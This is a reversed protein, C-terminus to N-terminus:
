KLESKSLEDVYTAFLKIGNVYNEVDLKENISHAGDDGRGMSLLLVNKNLATEFTLTIPISGGERVLDPEVGYVTKVAKAGITYHWHFPSSIWWSGSHLCEVSVRNKSNLSAFVKEVHEKVCKNIHEATMNPVTRISFKGTVKAPIVTKAGSESFAGQIGHLSLTPYRWRHQLTDKPSDYVNIEGGVAQKLDDMSYDINDYLKDEDKTLPAVEDVIGPVLITGDPKVLSAMVAILDTMPEHVTGGFVGSHLDASPGEVTVNFYSVGRLGYTLVPKRTGLWYTDSICVCDAKKFYRNAEAVILDDLGESGYEEMGEFCMLLNVPFDVGAEKYAELNAIWGMLPGKDDTVGRGLMRDKEDVVLEFPESDWGDSKKAPQVDYHNYILVTKKAPDNGYQGLVIPPLPVEVGNMVHSGIDRKEMKAGLKEFESVIFDAMEVVKPRLSADASVSPISVAKHLREIYSQKKSDILEYIKQLSM